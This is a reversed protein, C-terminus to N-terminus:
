EAHRPMNVNAETSWKSHVIAAMRTHLLHRYVSGHQHSEPGDHRDYLCGLGVEYIRRLRSAQLCDCMCYVLMSKTAICARYLPRIIGNCPRALSLVTATDIVPQIM